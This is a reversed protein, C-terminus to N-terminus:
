RPVASPGFLFRKNAWLLVAPPLVLLCSALAAYYVNAENVYAYVLLPLTQVKGAGILLTLGYQFWSILFTQFFCILLMPKALPLLVRRYAARQTGGLTYVLGELARVEDTWFASFFVISFGYAFMSQAAVVGAVTGALGAKLYLYMLCTGLIVPSMVFPVYALLLLRDRRPHYGVFKGTAFGAATALAAVASSVSCSLVFADALAGTGTLLRVWADTTLARPVLDPFPWRDVFSLVVLYVLPFLCLAGLTWALVPRALGAVLPAALPSPPASERM